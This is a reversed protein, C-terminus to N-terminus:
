LDTGTGKALSSAGTGARSDNTLSMAKERLAELIDVADDESELDIEDIYASVYNLRKLYLM